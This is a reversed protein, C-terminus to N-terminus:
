LTPFFNVICGQPLEYDCLYLSVFVVTMRFAIVRYSINSVYQLIFLYIFLYFFYYFANSLSLSDM